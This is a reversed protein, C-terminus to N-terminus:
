IQRRPACERAAARSSLRLELQRRWQRAARIADAAPQPLFTGLYLLFSERRPHLVLSKRLYRRARRPNHDAALAKRAAFLLARARGRRLARQSAPRKGLETAAWGNYMEWSERLEVDYKRTEQEPHLRYSALPSPVFDIQYQAAIRLFLEHDEVIRYPKFPGVETLVDRRVVATLMQIFDNELLREFVWGRHLTMVQSILCRISGDTEIFFCDSYVLGLEPSTEFLSIQEELKTPAWLDDHDLFAVYRGNSLELAKNRAAALGANPQYHYTIPWGADLHRRVIQETSDSSGDNVIVLEWNSSTQAFVSQLTEELFRESNYCCLQVSVLPASSM